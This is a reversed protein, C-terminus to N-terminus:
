NENFMSATPTGAIHLPPARDLFRCVDCRGLVEGIHRPLHLNAEESAVLVRRIQRTSAHGRNVRLKMIIKKPDSRTGDRADGLTAAGCALFTRASYSQMYRGGHTPSSRWWQRREPAEVNLGM